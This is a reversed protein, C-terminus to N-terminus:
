IVVLLWGWWGRPVVLDREKTTFLTKGISSSWFSAYLVLISSRLIFIQELIYTAKEMKSGIRSWEQKRQM